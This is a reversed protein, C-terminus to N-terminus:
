GGPIRDHDEAGDLQQQGDAVDAAADGVDRVEAAQCGAVRNKASATDVGDFFRPISIQAPFHLARAFFEADVGAAPLVVPVLVDMLCIEFTSPLLYFTSLPSPCVVEDRM